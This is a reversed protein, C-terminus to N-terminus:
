MGNKYLKLNQHKQRVPAMARSTEVLFTLAYVLRAMLRGDLDSAPDSSFLSEVQRLIVHDPMWWIFNNKYGSMRLEAVPYAGGTGSSVAVIQAPKHALEGGDCMLLFNKLHPPVMGAWEPSIVVFGDCSKLCDSIPQWFAKMESGSKWKDENWLPIELDRLAFYEVSVSADLEELLEKIYHGIRGSESKERISGVIIGIKLESM